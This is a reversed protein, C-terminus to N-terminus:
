REKRYVICYVIIRNIQDPDWILVPVDQTDRYEQGEVALDLREQINSFSDRGTYDPAGNEWATRQDM